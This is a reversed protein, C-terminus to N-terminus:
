YANSRQIGGPRLEEPLVFLLELANALREDKNWVVAKEVFKDVWEPLSQNVESPYQFTVRDFGTAARYLMVGLAYVDSRADVLEGEIQEPSMYDYTGSFNRNGLHQESFSEDALFRKRWVYAPDATIDALGFDGLKATLCGMKNEQILINEPKVDKHVYGREHIYALAWCIQPFLNTIMYDPLCNRCRRLLVALSCPVGGRDCCFETVLFPVNQDVGFNLLELVHPHQLTELAKCERLFHEEDHATLRTATLMKVAVPQADENPLIGKFVLGMGGEGIKELIRYPGVETPLDTM